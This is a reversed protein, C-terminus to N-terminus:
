QFKYALTIMVSKNSLGYNFGSFDSKTEADGNDYYNKRTETGSRYGFNPLLEAGIVLNDSLIYNFGLVLNIGLKYTKKERKRDRDEISKDNYDFKSQYYDFSIDGGFRFQLDDTMKSRFEKGAKLGLGNNSEKYVLSDATGETNSGKVLLTTFRWLSKNTGTKVSLGFNDLNYFALGIEKQKTSEQAFVFLSLTVFSIILLIKRM